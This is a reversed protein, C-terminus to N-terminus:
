NSKELQFYYADPAYQFANGTILDTTSWDWFANLITIMDYEKQLPQQQPEYGDKVVRISSHKNKKLDVSLPTTGVQAGDVFVKAGSPNSDISIDQSSGKLITACGTFALVLVIVAVLLSIKKM